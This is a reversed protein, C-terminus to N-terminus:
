ILCRTEHRHLAAQQTTHCCLLPLLPGTGIVQLGLLVSHLVGELFKIKVLIPEKRPMLEFLHIMDQDDM